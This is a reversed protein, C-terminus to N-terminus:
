KCQLGIKLNDLDTKLIEFFSIDQELQDKSVNHAANLLL